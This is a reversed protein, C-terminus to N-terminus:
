KWPQSEWKEVATTTCDFVGTIKWLTAHPVQPGIRCQDNPGESALGLVGRVSSAWYVCNHVRSLAIKAPLDSDEEVYGFFVGRFETTVVVARQSPSKPM